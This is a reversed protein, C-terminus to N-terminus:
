QCFKNNITFSMYKELWNTIVSIKLNFKDLEQMIIHSGYNILNHFEIPIKHNLIWIVILIYLAEINELSTVIIELSECWRCLWMMTVYGLNLLIKFIKM